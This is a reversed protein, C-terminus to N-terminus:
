WDGRSGEDRDGSSSKTGGAASEVESEFVPSIQPIKYSSSRQLEFKPPPRPSTPYQRRLSRVRGGAVDDALTLDSMGSSDAIAHQHALLTTPEWPPHSMNAPVHQSPGFDNFRPSCSVIQAQPVYGGPTLAYLVRHQGFSPANFGQCASPRGDLPPEEVSRSHSQTSGEPFVNVRQTNSDSCYHHAHESSEGGGRSYAPGAKSPGAKVPSNHPMRPHLGGPENDHHGSIQAQHPAVTAHAAQDRRHDATARNYEEVGATEERIFEELTKIKKKTGATDSQHTLSHLQISGGANLVDAAHKLDHYRKELDPFDMCADKAQKSIDIVLKDWDQKKQAATELLKQMGNILQTLTYHVYVPDPTGLPNEPTQTYVNILPAWTYQRIVRPAPKSPRPSTPAYALVNGGAGFEEVTICDPVGHLITAPLLSYPPAPAQMNSYFSSIGGLISAALIEPHAVAPLSPNFPAHTSLNSRAPMVSGDSHITPTPDLPVRLVLNSHPLNGGQISTSTSSGGNSISSVYEKGRYLPPQPQSRYYTEKEYSAAATTQNVAPGLSSSHPRGRTGQHYQRSNYNDDAAGDAHRYGEYSTIHSDKGSESLAESLVRYTVSAPLARPTSGNDNLESGERIPADSNTLDPTHSQSLEDRSRQTVSGVAGHHHSCSVRHAHTQPMQKATKEHSNSVFGENRTM